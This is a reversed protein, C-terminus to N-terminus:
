DSNATFFAYALRMFTTIYLLMIIAVKSVNIVGNSYTRKPESFCTESSVPIDVELPERM